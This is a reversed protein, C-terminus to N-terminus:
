QKIARGTHMVIGTDNAVQFSVTILTSDIRDKVLTGTLTDQIRCLIQGRHLTTTDGVVTDVTATYSAATMSIVVSGSFGCLGTVTMKSHSQAVPSINLVLSDYGVYLGSALYMSDKFIYKGAFLDIAYFCVSNDPKGPFGWNYNVAAPDNCYPNTLRPDTTPAPDKWKKCSFFVTAM